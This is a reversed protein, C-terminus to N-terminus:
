AAAGATQRDVAAKQLAEIEDAWWISIRGDPDLKTPKPVKGKEILEYLTSNSCGLADLVAPKRLARRVM